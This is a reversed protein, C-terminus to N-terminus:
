GSLLTYQKLKAQLGQFSISQDDLVTEDTGLRLTILSIGAKYPFTMPNKQRITPYSKVVINLTIELILNGIDM